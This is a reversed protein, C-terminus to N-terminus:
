LGGFETLFASNSQRYSSNHIIDDIQGRTAGRKITDIRKRRKKLFKKIVQEINNYSCPVQSMILCQPATYNLSKQKQHIYKLAKVTM